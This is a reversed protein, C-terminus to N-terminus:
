KRQCLVPGFIKLQEIDYTGHSSGKMQALVASRCSFAFSKFNTQTLDNCDLKVSRYYGQLSEQAAEALTYKRSRVGSISNNIGDSYISWHQGTYLSQNRCTVSFTFDFHESYQDAFSTMSIFITTCFLLIMRM